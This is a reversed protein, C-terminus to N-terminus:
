QKIKKKRLFYPIFSTFDHKLVIGLGQTNLNSKTFYRDSTQNYVRVQLNGNPFLLYRIDFDGIFSTTANANDRYGFQGNILLRNNLMRGSILGEYEANMMGADGPSINAGFNWNKNKLVNESIINNLQQSLTGSLFSQMAISAKSKGAENMGAKIDYFRGVSLLYLVQQNREQEGDMISTIMQQVDTSAQPLNLDFEVKPQEATGGINMLCNVRVTNNSFSNGISLDSLPVSPVVYQAQLNIAAEMPDGGFSLTGGPLFEFSKTIVQQLTMKYEGHDVTYNGFIQMGGKNFYNARLTGSGNLTIYDGTREDMIIRLTSEQDAHVLFNLRINTHFEKEINLPTPKIDPAPAKAISDASVYALGAASLDDDSKERWIIFEQNQLGDPSSANYTLESTKEPYAEIDFVVEGPRGTMKCTGSGVVHGCFVSGNLTPFDFCLLHEAEVDLDFTMKALNKHHLAGRLMGKGGNKDYIPCHILKIDDVVFDVSDDKLYFTTNLPTILASGNAVASGTLNIRSLDGWLRVRGSAWASVNDLFSDCFTQMFECRTNHAKIDLDIYNRKLSIYGNIDTFGDEHRDTVDDDNCIGQVNIQGLDNDWQAHVTLTGLRGYEFMFNRVDLSASADLNGFLAKAQAWGSAFGCFEVDHFDVINMIYAVNVDQLNVVLSDTQSKTALGNISIHQEGHDILFNDVKLRNASYTISAPRIHWLSDGLMVNSPLISVSATAKGEYDKFFQSQTNLSGRFENGNGNDWNLSTTLHNNAAAANIDIDLAGETNLKRGKATLRLTDDPCYIHLRTADIATGSIDIGPVTLMIDAKHANDNIFGELHAAKSMSIDVGLLKRLIDTNSITASLAINNHQPAYESLGPITPLKRAVINTLSKQLTFPNFMGKASLTAFDSNLNIERTGDINHASEVTLNDLHYSDKPSSMHFDNISLRINDQPNVLDAVQANARVSFSTAPWKGTIGLAEPNIHAINVSAALNRLAQLNGKLLEDARETSLEINAQVNMDAIDMLAALSNGTQRINIGVNRYPYSNLTLLPLEITSNINSIHNDHESLDATLSINTEVDGIVNGTIVNGLSLTTTKLQATVHNNHLSVDHTLSGIGTALKGKATIDRNSGSFTASYDISRLNYLADVNGDLLSLIRKLSENAIHITNIDANWTIGQLTKLCDYINTAASAKGTLSCIFNKDSSSVAFKSVDLRNHNGKIDADIFITSNLGAFKPVFLAIDHLGIASHDSFIDISTIRKGELTAKANLSVDSNDTQIYLKQLDVGSKGANATFSVNSAHFASNQETFSLNKLRVSLSDDTLAHLMLHGSVKDLSIHNLDIADHSRPQDLQDYSVATNRIVLSGIHLDLPTHSTTDKSSLADIIFQCNLPAEASAKNLMAKMGFIQASAISIRGKLLPLVELKASLRHCSLLKRHQQDDIRVDDIIIRNLFGLNINGVEVRTALEDSLIRAAERACRQQVAPIHLLVVVAAYVTVM